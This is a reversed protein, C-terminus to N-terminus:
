FQSRREGWEGGELVSWSSGSPLILRACLVPSLLYEPCVRQFKSVNGRTTGQAQGGGWCVGSTGTPVSTAAQTEGCELSEAITRGEPPLCM